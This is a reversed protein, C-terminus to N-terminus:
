DLACIEGIRIGNFLAFLIGFSFIDNKTLLHQVLIQQEKQSFVRMQAKATKLFHIEPVSVNNQEKAYSLAMELVMLVLNVTERSLGKSLLNDTFQAISHSSLFKIPMEGIIKSIHNSLITCYKQYSSIKIHNKRECLWELMIENVTLKTKSLSALPNSICNQQKAKVDKYTRAYLATSKQGTLRLGRLM